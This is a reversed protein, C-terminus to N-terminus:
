ARFQNIDLKRHDGYKMNTERDLLRLHRPNICSPNGCAHDITDTDKLQGYVMAYVYRHVLSSGPLASPPNHKAYGKRDKARVWQLCPDRKFIMSPVPITHNYLSQVYRIQEESLDERLEIPQFSWDDPSIPTDENKFWEEWYVQDKLVREDLQELKQLESKKEESRERDQLTDHIQAQLTDHVQSLKVSRELWERKSKEVRDILDSKTFGRKERNDTM